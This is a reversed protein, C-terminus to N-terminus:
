PSFLLKLTTSKLILCQTELGSKKLCLMDNYKIDSITNRFTNKLYFENNNKIDSM